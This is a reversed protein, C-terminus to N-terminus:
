SSTKHHVLDFKISGNSMQLNAIVKDSILEIEKQNKNSSFISPTEGGNEIIFPATRDISSYNRDALGCLFSKGKFVLLEASLQPGSLWEELVCWGSKSFNLSGIM